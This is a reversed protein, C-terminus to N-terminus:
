EDDGWRDLYDNYFGLAVEADRLGIIPFSLLQELATGLELILERETM